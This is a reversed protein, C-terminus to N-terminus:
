LRASGLIIPVTQGGRLRLTMAVGPHTAFYQAVTMERQGFRVNQTQKLQSIVQTKPFLAVAQNMWAASGYLADALIAKVSFDPHDARFERLL